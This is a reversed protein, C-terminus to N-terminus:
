RDGLDLTWRSMVGAVHYGLVENVTIMPANVAANWTSVLRTAPSADQLARLTTVKLLLGLRHGRHGPMVLTDGQYARTPEALPM